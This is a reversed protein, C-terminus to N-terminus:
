FRIRFLFFSKGPYEEAASFIEQAQYYSFGFDQLIFWLRYM